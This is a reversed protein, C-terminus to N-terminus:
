LESARGRVARAAPTTRGGAALRMAASRVPRCPGMVGGPYQPANRYPHGHRHAGAPPHVRHDVRLSDGLIAGLSDLHYTIREDMTGNRCGGDRRSVSFRTRSTAPFVPLMQHDSCALSRISSRSILARSASPVIRSPCISPLITGSPSWPHFIVSLPRGASRVTCTTTAIESSSSSATMVAIYCRRCQPGPHSM